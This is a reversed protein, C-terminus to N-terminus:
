GRESLAHIVSQAFANANQRASDLGGVDKTDLHYLTGGISFVARYAARDVIQIPLMPIDGELFQQEIDKATKERIAPPVRSFFVRFPITRRAVKEMQRILRISKAAENADLVSGQSPILVLDSRAVAFGIRDTATGELDVLVFDSITTAADITDVITDASDDVVVSLKAGLSSTKHWTEIPRNPDADIVTVTKGAEALESALLVTSTTKGVGGKSSVFSIVPMINLRRFSFLPQLAVGEITAAEAALVM